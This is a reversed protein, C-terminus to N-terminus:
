KGLKRVAKNVERKIRRRDRGEFEIHARMMAAAPRLTGKGGKGKAMTFTRTNLNIPPPKAIM